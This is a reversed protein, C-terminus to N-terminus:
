KSKATKIQSLLKSYFDKMSTHSIETSSGKAFADKWPSENHTINVLEHASYNIFNDYLSHLFGLQKKSFKQEEKGNGEYQIPNYGFKKFEQYAEPIVPGWGWAEVTEKFLPENFYVLHWAQAYYLLKQMKLNTILDGENNAWQIFLNAVDLSNAM